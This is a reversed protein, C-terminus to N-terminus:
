CLFEGWTHETFIIDNPILPTQLTSKREYLDKPVKEKRNWSPVYTPLRTLPDAGQTEMEVDEEEEVLFEEFDEEEEDAELNIVKGKEEM